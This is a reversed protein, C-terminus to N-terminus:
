LRWCPWTQVLSSFPLRPVTLSLECAAVAAVLGGAISALAEGRFGLTDVGAELQALTSLKSTAHRTGLNSLDAGFIGHGDDECCLACGLVDLSVCIHSAGADLANCVLEEAAQALSGVMTTSRLRSACCEPLRLLPM